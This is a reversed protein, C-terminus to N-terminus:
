RTNSIPPFFDVAAARKRNFFFLNIGIDARKESVEGVMGSWSGSKDQTGYSKEHPIYYM